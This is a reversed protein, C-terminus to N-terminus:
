LKLNDYAIVENTNIRVVTKNEFLVRGLSRCLDERKSTKTYPINHEKCKQRLRALNVTSLTKTKLWFLAIIIAQDGPM